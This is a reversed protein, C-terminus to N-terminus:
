RVTRMASTYLVRLGPWRRRLRLALQRGNMGGPMVVDTFLLDPVTGNEILGLWRWESFASRARAAIRVM